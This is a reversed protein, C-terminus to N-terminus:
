GAEQYQRAVDLVVADEGPRGVIQLGLPLGNSDRGMPISISPLGYYNAFMTNEASLALPNGTAEKVTPTTQTTTPLLLLDVDKFLRAAITRRDSEINRIDFGPNDFPATVEAVVDLETIAAEFVRRVPPSAKFNTVRGLRAV